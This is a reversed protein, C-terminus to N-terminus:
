RPSDTASSGACCPNCRAPSEKRFRKVWAFSPSAGFLQRRESHGIIVYRCGAEALMRASIEGTFAGEKEWHLDQASIAISTGRAAEVAAALATFPPAAIIDCHNARAVLPALAAIFARAEGQTKYMKWNGAIVRRRM